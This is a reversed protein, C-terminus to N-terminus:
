TGQIEQPSGVGPFPMLGGINRFHTREGTHRRISYHARLAGELKRNEPKLERDKCAQSAYLGSWPSYNM